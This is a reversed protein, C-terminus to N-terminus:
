VEYLSPHLHKKIWGKAKMNALRGIGASVWKLWNRVYGGIRVYDAGQEHLLSIRLAFRKITNVAVRIIGPKLYYGLFDFGREVRGIFTKDPHQEVKM